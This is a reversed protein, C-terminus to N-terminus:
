RAAGGRDGAHWPVTEVAGLVLQTRLMGGSPGPERAQSRRRVLVSTPPKRSSVWTIRGRPPVVRRRSSWCSCDGVAVTSAIPFCSRCARSSRPNSRRETWSRRLLGIVWISASSRPSSFPSGSRGHGDGCEPPVCGKETEVAIGEGELVDVGPRSGRVARRRVPGPDVLRDGPHHGSHGGAGVMQPCEGLGALDRPDASPRGRRGTRARRPVLDRGSRGGAGERDKRAVLEALATPRQGALSAPHTRRDRELQDGPDGHDQNGGHQRSEDQQRDPRAQQGAGVDEAHHLRTGRTGRRRDVEPGVAGGAVEPEVAGGTM